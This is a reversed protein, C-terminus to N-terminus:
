RIVTARQAAQRRETRAWLVCHRVHTLSEAALSRLERDGVDAAAQQLLTWVRECDSAELDVAKLDLLLRVWGPADQGSAQCGRVAPMDSDAPPSPVAHMRAASASVRDGFVQLLRRRVIDHRLRSHQRLGRVDAALDAHRPPVAELTALASDLGEERDYAERLLDNLRTTLGTSSPRGIPTATV